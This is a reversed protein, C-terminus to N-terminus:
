RDPWSGAAPARHAFCRGARHIARWRARLAAPDAGARAEAAVLQALADARAAHGLDVPRKLVHRAAELAADDDLEDPGVAEGLGAGLLAEEVLGAVAEAQLVGVDDRHVVEAALLALPEQHEFLDRPRAQRRQEDGEGADAGRHGFVLRQEDGGVEGGRQLVHVALHVLGAAQEAEHVAIEAGGVHQQAAAGLGLEAVKADAADCARTLGDLAM